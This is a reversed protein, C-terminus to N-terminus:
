LGHAGWQVETGNLNQKFNNNTGRVGYVAKLRYSIFWGFKKPGGASASPAVTGGHRGSVAGRRGCAGHMARM